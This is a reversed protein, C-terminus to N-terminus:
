GSGWDVQEGMGMGRGMRGDRRICSMEKVLEDICAQNCMSVNLMSFVM